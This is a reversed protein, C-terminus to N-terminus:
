CAAPCALPAALSDAPPIPFLANQGGLAALAMTPHIRHCLSACPLLPPLLPPCPAPNRDDQGIHIVDTQSTLQLRCPRDRSCPGSYFLRYTEIPGRMEHAIRFKQPLYPLPTRIIRTKANRCHAKDFFAVPKSRVLIGYCKMSDPCARRQTGASRPRAGPVSDHPRTM